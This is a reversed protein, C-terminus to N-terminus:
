KSSSLSGDLITSLIPHYTKKGNIPTYPVNGPSWVDAYSYPPISCTSNKQSNMPFGMLIHPFMIFFIAKSMAIQEDTIWNASFNGSCTCSTCIMKMAINALCTYWPFMKHPQIICWLYWTRIHSWSSFDAPCRPRLGPGDCSRSARAIVPSTSTSTLDQQRTVNMLGKLDRFIAKARDLGSCAPCLWIGGQPHSCIWFGPNM